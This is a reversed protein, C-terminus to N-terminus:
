IEFSILVATNRFVTKMEVAGGFIKEYEFCRNIHKCIDCHVLM